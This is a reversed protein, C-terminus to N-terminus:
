TFLAETTRQVRKAPIGGEPTAQYPAQPAAIEGDSDSVNEPSTRCLAAVSGINHTYHKHNDELAKHFSRDYWSDWLGRTLPNHPARVATFLARCDNIYHPNRCAPDWTRVRLQAAKATMWVSKCSIPMGYHQKLYWFDEKSAWTHGPGKIVRHLAEGEAQLTAEPPNELQGIFGLVSAALTNYAYVDYHLGLAHDEGMTSRDLYKATPASWSSDNKNPGIRFGLYTGSLAIPM